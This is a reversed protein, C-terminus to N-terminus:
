SYTVRGKFIHKAIEREMQPIVPSGIGLWRRQPMKSTGSMHFGGYNVATKATFLMTGAASFKTSDQMKGTKRLLPWQGTPPKRPAWGSGDVPDRQESWSQKNYDEVIKTLRSKSSKWWDLNVKPATLKFSIM